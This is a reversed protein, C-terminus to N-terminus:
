RHISPFYCFYFLLPRRVGLPIAALLGGDRKACGVGLNKGLSYARFRAPGARGSAQHDEAAASSGRAQACNIGTYM